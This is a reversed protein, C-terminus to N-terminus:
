GPVALFHGVGCDALRSALFRGLSRPGGLPPPVAAPHATAARLSLSAARQSLEAAEDARQQLSRGLHLEAPGGPQGPQASAGDVGDSM